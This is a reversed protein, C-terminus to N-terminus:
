SVTQRLTPGPSSARDLARHLLRQLDGCSLLIELLRSRELNTLQEYQLSILLARNSCEELFHKAVHISSAELSRNRIKSELVDLQEYCNVFFHDLCVDRGAIVVVASNVCGSANCEIKGMTKDMDRLGKTSICLLHFEQNIGLLSGTCSKNATTM